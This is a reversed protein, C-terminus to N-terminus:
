GRFDNHGTTSYNLLMVIIAISIGGIILTYGCLYLDYLENVIRTMAHDKVGKHHMNLFTQVIAQIFNAVMLGSVTGVIFHTFRSRKVAPQKIYMVFLVATFWLEVAASFLQQVENWGATVYCLFLCFASIVILGIFYRNIM